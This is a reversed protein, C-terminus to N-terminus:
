AAAAPGGRGVAGRAGRRILSGVRRLGEAARFRVWAADAGFPARAAQSGADRAIRQALQEARARYTHARLALRHGRAAIDEREADRALYRRLGAVLGGVDDVEVLHGEGFPSDPALRESVLFAGAGLTEYVRTEVDPHDDAHLNLVIKARNVFRVMDEGFAQVVQVGLERPLADLIRRRRPTLSGVFLVEIDKGVGPLKRHLAPDFASLLISLRDPPQWGRRVIEDACARTRVFVHSLARCRFLPYQDPRRAFLETALFFSPVRAARLLALPFRDGRQVLMAHVPPCHRVQGALRHRHERYDVCRTRHGLGELAANLFWEAGWGAHRRIVSFYLLELRPVPGSGAATVAM